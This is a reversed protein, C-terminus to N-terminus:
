EPRMPHKNNMILKSYWPHLDLKLLAMEIQDWSLQREGNLIRYGQSRSLCVFKHLTELNNKIGQIFLINKLEEMQCNTFRDGKLVWEGNCKNHTWYTPKSTDIEYQVTYALVALNENKSKEQLEELNM